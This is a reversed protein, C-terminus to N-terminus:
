SVQSLSVFYAGDLACPDVYNVIPAVENRLVHSSSVDDVIVETTRNINQYICNYAGEGGKPHSMLEQNRAISFFRLLSARLFKPNLRFTNM